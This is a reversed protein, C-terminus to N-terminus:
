FYKGAEASGRLWYTCVVFTACVCVLCICGQVFARWDSLSYLSSEHNAFVLSLHVKFRVDPTRNEADGCGGKKKKEKKKRYTTVILYCVSKIIYFGRNLAIIYSLCRLSCNKLRSFTGFIGCYFSMYFVWKKPRPVLYVESFDKSSVSRSIGLM